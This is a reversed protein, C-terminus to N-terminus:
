TGYHRVKMGDFGIIHTFKPTLLNRSELDQIPIMNYKKFQWKSRTSASPKSTTKLDSKKTGKRARKVTKIKGRDKGSDRVWSISFEIGYEIRTLVESITIENKM